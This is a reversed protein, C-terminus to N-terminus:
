FILFSSIIHGRYVTSSGVGRELIRNSRTAGTYRASFCSVAGDFEVEVDQFELMDKAIPNVAKFVAEKASFVRTAFLRDKDGMHGLETPTLVMRDISHPPATAPEADVGLGKLRPHNSVIVVALTDSHSISGVFGEPWVPRRGDLGLPEDSSFGLLALACKAFSRGTSFERRRKMVCNSIRLRDVEALEDTYDSIRGAVCVTHADFWFVERVIQNSELQRSLGLNM